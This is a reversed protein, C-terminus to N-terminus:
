VADRLRTTETLREELTPAYGPRLERLASDYAAQAAAEDCDLLTALSIVAEADSEAAAVMEAVAVLSAGAAIQARLRQVQLDLMRRRDDPSSSRGRWRERYRAIQASSLDVALPHEPRLNLGVMIAHLDHRGPVLDARTGQNLAVSVRAYEGPDRPVAPGHGMSAWSFGFDTTGPETFVGVVHFGDGDPIWRTDGTNVIDIVYEDAAAGTTTMMPPWRLELSSRREARSKRLSVTGPIVQAIADAAGTNVQALRWTQLAADTPSGLLFFGGASPRKLVRWGESHADVASQEDVLFGLESALAALPFGDQTLASRDIDIDGLQPSEDASEM